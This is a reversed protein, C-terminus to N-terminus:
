IKFILFKFITLHRECVGVVLSEDVLVLLEVSGELRELLVEALGASLLLLDFLEIAIELGVIFGHAVLAVLVLLTKDLLHSQAFLELLVLFLANAVHPSGNLDLLLLEILHLRLHDQGNIRVDEPHLNLLVDFAPMAKFDLLLLLLTLSQLLIVIFGLPLQVDDLGLKLIHLVLGLFFDGIDSFPVLLLDM